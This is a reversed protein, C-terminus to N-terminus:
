EKFKNMNMQKEKQYSNEWHEMYDQLQKMLIVAYIEKSKCGVKLKFQQKKISIKNKQCNSISLPQILLAKICYAIMKNKFDKSSELKLANLFRYFNKLDNRYPMAGIQQCIGMLTQKMFQEKLNVEPDSKIDGVLKVMKGLILILLSTFIKQEQIQNKLNKEYFPLFDEKNYFGNLQDLEDLRTDEFSQGKVFILKLSKGKVLDDLMQQCINTNKSDCKIQKTEQISQYFTRILSYKDIEFLDNKSQPVKRMFEEFTKDNQYSASLGKIIYAKQDDQIQQDLKITTGLDGIKILQDKFVLLNQPKMDGYYVDRQHLYAMLQITQYFYYALKEPSYYEYFKESLEQNNWISLLDYLSFRAREVVVLYNKIIKNDFDYEIIEEKVEAIFKDSQLLKLQQTEGMLSTLVYQKTFEDIKENTKTASQKIVVEDIGVYDLKYVVSEGGRAIENISIVNQYQKSNTKIYDVLQSEPSISQKTEESEKFKLINQNQACRKILFDKDKFDTQYQNNIDQLYLSKEDKTLIYNQQFSEVTQLNFYNSLNHIQTSSATSRSTIYKITAPKSRVEPMLTPECFDDESNEEDENIEKIQALNSIVQNKNLVITGDQKRKLTVTAEDKKNFPRMYDLIQDQVETITTTHNHSHNLQLVEIAEKQSYDDDQSSLSSFGNINSHDHSNYLHARQQLFNSIFIIPDSPRQITLETFAEGLLKDIGTQSLYYKIASEM